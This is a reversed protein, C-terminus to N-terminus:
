EPFEGALEKDIVEKFVEYPQAGVIPLGNLFFTPTSRVGLNGAYQYDAEVEDAYRGSTYCEEFAAVDLELEEAIALYSDDSLVHEGSFLAESFEWFAEQELACNSAEAAPVANPHISKLPFDRFVIRVEDPYDNRIREFVETHWRQCYPCEFDSFEIITIPADAPGIAPDGDEPVDYRQVPQQEEPAAQADQPAQAAAQPPQIVVQEAEPILPARGWFLYGVGLGVVFALPLLVAYLHSRKFTVTNEQPEDSLAENEDVPSETSDDVPDDVPNESIQDM